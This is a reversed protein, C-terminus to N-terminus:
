FIYGQSYDSSMRCAIGFLNEPLGSDRTADVEVSVEDYQNKPLLSFVTFNNKFVRIHYASNLYLWECCDEKKTQWGSKTDSFDDQGIIKGTGAVTPQTQTALTPQLPVTALPAITPLLAVTPAPSPANSGVLDGFSCAFGAIMGLVLALPFAFQKRM